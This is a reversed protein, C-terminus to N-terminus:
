QLSVHLNKYVGYNLGVNYISSSLLKTLNQSTIKADVLSIVNVSYTILIVIFYVNIKFNNDEHM